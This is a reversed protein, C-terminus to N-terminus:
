DFVWPPIVTAGLSLPDEPKLELFEISVDWRSFMTLGLDVEFFSRLFDEGVRPLGV